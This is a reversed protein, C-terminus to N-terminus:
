AEGIVPMKVGLVLEDFPVDIQGQENREFIHWKLGRLAPYHL